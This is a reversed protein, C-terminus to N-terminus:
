SGHAPAGSIAHSKLLEEFKLMAPSPTRDKRRCIGIPRSPAPPEIPLWILGKMNVEPLTRVPIFTAGFGARAMSLATFMTAVDYGVPNAVRHHALAAAIQERTSSNRPMMILPYGGLASWPLPRPLGKALARGMVAVLEDDFLLTFDLDDAMASHACVAFDADGSAVREILAGNYDESINFTIGPFSGRMAELVKIVVGIALSPLTAVSLHGHEVRAIARAEECADDIEVMGRKMKGLLIAGSDTIRVRRTTRDFLRVGLGSELERILQSFASQTINMAEAGRSFSLKESAALFAEIQRLSVNRM